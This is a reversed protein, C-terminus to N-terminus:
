PRNGDIQVDVEALVSEILDKFQRNPYNFLRKIHSDDSFIKLKKNIYTAM